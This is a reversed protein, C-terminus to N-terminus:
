NTFSANKCYNPDTVTTTATIPGYTNPYPGFPNTQFPALPPSLPIASHHYHTVIMPQARLALIEAELQLIRREAEKLTM